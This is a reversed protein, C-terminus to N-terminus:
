RAGQDTVDYARAMANALHITRVMGPIKVTRTPLWTNGSNGTIKVQACSYFYQAGKGDGQSEHLGIHQPRILYEGDPLRTPITFNIGAQGYSCWSTTTIDTPASCLTSDFAKFWNGSGDYSKVGASPAKSMFV